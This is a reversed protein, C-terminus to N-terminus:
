RMVFFFSILTNFMAKGIRSPTDKRAKVKPNANLHIILPLMGIDLPYSLINVTAQNTISILIRICNRMRMTMTNPKRIEPNKRRTLWILWISGAIPCIIGTNFLGNSLMWTLMMM